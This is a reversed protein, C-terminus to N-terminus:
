STINIKTYKITISNMTSVAWGCKEILLLYTFLDRCDLSKHCDVIARDSENVFQRSICTNLQKTKQKRVVCFEKCVFLRVIWQSVNQHFPWEWAIGRGYNYGALHDCVPYIKLQVALFKVCSLAPLQWPQSSTAYQADLHEIFIDLPFFHRSTPITHYKKLDHLSYSSGLKSIWM